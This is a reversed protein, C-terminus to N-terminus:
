EKPSATIREKNSRDYIMKLFIETTVELAFLGNMVFVPILELQWAYVEYLLASGLVTLLMIMSVDSASKKKYTKIVQPLFSLMTLIGAAYGVLDVNM